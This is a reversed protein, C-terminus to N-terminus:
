QVKRNQGPIYKQQCERSGMSHHSTGLQSLVYPMQSSDKNLFSLQDEWAPVLWM